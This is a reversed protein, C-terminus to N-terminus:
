GDSFFALKRYLNILFKIEATEYAPALGLWGYQLDLCLTGM